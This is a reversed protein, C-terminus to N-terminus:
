RSDLAHKAGPETESRARHWPGLSVLQDVLRTVEDLMRRHRPRASGFPDDIDDLLDSGLMGGATREASVRALWADLTEGSRPPAVSGARRVLEKLTFTRTWAAPELAVVSRVHERAMGLVLDAGDISIIDRTLRRPRHTTLDLSVEEAVSLTNADLPVAVPSTGASTVVWSEGDNDVQGNLRRSLLREAVPSRCVNATCVVLARRVM